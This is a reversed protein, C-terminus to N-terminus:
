SEELRRRMDDAPEALEKAREAALRPIDDEGSKHDTDAPKPERNLRHVPVYNAAVHEGWAERAAKEAESYDRVM